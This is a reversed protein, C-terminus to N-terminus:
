YANGQDISGGVFPLVSGFSKFCQLTIAKQGTDDPRFGHHHFLRSVKGQNTSPSHLRGVYRIFKMDTLTHRM